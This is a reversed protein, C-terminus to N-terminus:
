YNMLIVHRTSVSPRLSAPMIRVAPRLMARECQMAAARQMSYGAPTSQEQALCRGAVNVM